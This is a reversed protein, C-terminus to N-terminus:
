SVADPNLPCEFFTCFSKIVTILKHKGQNMLKHKGQNM